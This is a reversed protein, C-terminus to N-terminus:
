HISLFSYIILVRVVNTCLHTLQGFKFLTSFNQFILFDKLINRNKVFKSDRLIWYFVNSYRYIKSIGLFGKFVRFDSLIVQYLKFDMLISLFRKYDM